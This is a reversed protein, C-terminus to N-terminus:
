VRDFFSLVTKTAVKSYHQTQRINTHGAIKSVVELPVGNNLMATLASHRAIHFHLPKGIGALTAIEKLYANTKQNSIQPLEYDYKVLLEMAKNNLPVIYVVGTKQRERRIYPVGNDTLIHERKLTCQDAFSLGTYCSFLFMDRVKNIREISDIKEIRAIEDTTLAVVDKVKRVIKMDCFPNTSIKNNKVGWEFIAKLRKLYGALTETDLKYQNILHHKYRVIDDNVIDAAVADVTVLEVLRDAALKYKAYTKITIESEARKSLTNFYESFMDGISYISKKTNGRLHDIIDDLEISVQALIRSNYYDMAKAKYLNCIQQVTNTKKSILKKRFEDVKCKIPLQIVKRKGNLNLWMMVPAAGDKTVRGTCYSINLM